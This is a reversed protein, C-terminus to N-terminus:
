RSVVESMAARYSDALSDGGVLVYPHPTDDGRSLDNRLEWTKGHESHMFYLAQTPPSTSFLRGISYESGGVLSGNVMTQGVARELAAWNHMHGLAAYDFMVGKAQFLERLRAIAREIGYWPIGQWSKIEDGHFVLFTKGQIETTMLPSRPFRCTVNQQNAMMLSLTQYMLYDWNVYRDKAVPKVTTRGHNGPVGEVVVREFRAALRLVFQALLLALNAWQEYLDHDNTEALENHISGSVMDGLMLLRLEPVPHARGIVDLSTLVLQEFQYLRRAAIESDYRNFGLVQEPDVVEGYQFDSLHGVLSMPSRRNGSASFYPPKVKVSPLAAIAETLHELIIQTRAKEQTYVRHEHTEHSKRLREAEAAGPDTEEPRADRDRPLIWRKGNWVRGQEHHMKWSEITRIPIGSARSLAAQNRGALEYAQWFEEANRLDSM